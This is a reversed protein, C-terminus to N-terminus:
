AMPAGSPTWEDPAFAPDNPCPRHAPGDSEAGCVACESLEPEFRDAGLPIDEAALLSRHTAMRGNDCM